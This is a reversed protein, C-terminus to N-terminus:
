EEELLDELQGLVIVASCNSTSEDDTDNDGKNYDIAVGDRNFPNFYSRLRM